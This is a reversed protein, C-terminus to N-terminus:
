VLKHKAIEDVHLYLGCLDCMCVTMGQSTLIFCKCLLLVYINM